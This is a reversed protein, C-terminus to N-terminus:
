RRGRESAMHRSAWLNLSHFCKKALASPRSKRLLAGRDTRYGYLNAAGWARWRPGHRQGAMFPRHGLGQRFWKCLHCRVHQILRQTPHKMTSVSAAVIEGATRRRLFSWKKDGNCRTAITRGPMVELKRPKQIRRTELYLRSRPMGHYPSRRGLYHQGCRVGPLVNAPVSAMFPFALSSVHPDSNCGLQIVARRVRSRRSRRDLRLLGADIGPFIHECNPWVPDTVIAEAELGAPDRPLDQHYLPIGAHQYYPILRAGQTIWGM